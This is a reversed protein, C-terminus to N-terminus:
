RSTRSISTWTGRRSPCSLDARPTQPIAKQIYQTRTEEVAEAAGLVARQLRATRRQFALQKEQDQASLEAMGVPVAQLTQPGQGSAGTGAGGIRGRFSEVQDQHV